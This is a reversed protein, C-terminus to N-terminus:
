YYKKRLELEFKKGDPYLDLVLSDITTRIRKLCEIEKFLEKELYKLSDIKQM